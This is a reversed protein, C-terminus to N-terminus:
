GSCSFHCPFSARGSRGPCGRRGPCGSCSPNDLHSPHGPHSSLPSSIITSEFDCSAAILQIVQTIYM